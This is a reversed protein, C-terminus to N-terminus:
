RFELRWDGDDTLDVALAHRPAADILEALLAAGLRPMLSARLIHDLERAGADVTACRDVLRDLLQPAFTTAIHHQAHVRRALADLKLQAIERMIPRDLPLFPVVTLRALLAPRFHAALIPRIAAAAETPTAGRAALALLEDSALNSTLIIITNRFDVARGEGDALTGKDFVQYFLNLVDLHAKECEDLLVVSYPRKRAAETLTGGEGYGVYGPPSGVLRSATHPAQFESMNISILSQEGGFILEALALATETKGVGSTGVFLFVGLPREPAQIGARAVRLSESIARLAHPQGKIREGLTDELRLLADVTSRHLREVPVGSITAVVRAVADADVEAHVLPTAGALQHMSARAARLADTAQTADDRASADARAAQIAALASRQTQWCAALSAARDALQARSATLAHLHDSDVPYGEREERHHAALQRDLAALQQDLAALAAPRASQELQVRAAATDLVDIAKDPLLRSQIYRHSLQVAAEIAGDLILVGHAQEYAGRINRLMAAAADLTPEDVRVPQFRRELAPDKEFYKKFERWTTAAITRLEGRALAPKLINAADHDHNPSILTHAEDIFLVIPTPSARVADIVAHLRREFEGRVGAGAQLLGLDLSRLDVGTLAPPVEGAAIALALGEVLATKGVGPEGVIVPNNKRRRALVEILQYIEADRGCIPDIAGRRAAETLSRTFRELESSEGQAAPPTASQEAQAREPSHATWERLRQRLEPARLVALARPLEPLYRQSSTLLQLLLHGTCLAASGFELSAPTWADELWRFLSDAFVPRRRSSSDHARLAARLERLAASRDLDLRRALLAIDGEDLELLAVLLHEPGVEPHGSTAGLHVAAELARTALSSLRRILHKPDVLM